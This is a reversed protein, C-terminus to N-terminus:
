RMLDIHRGIIALVEATWAPPLDVQNNRIPLYPRAPLGNRDSGFQHAMALGPTDPHDLLGVNVYDSGADAHIRNFLHESTDRLIVGGTREPRQNLYSASLPAFPEGWPTEGQNIQTHIFDVFAEGIDNMAPQLNNVHVTLNYLAAQVAADDLTIQLSM